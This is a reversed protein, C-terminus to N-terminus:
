QRLKAAQGLLVDSFGDFAIGPALPFREIPLVRRWPPRMLDFFGNRFRLFRLFLVLREFLLAEPEGLLVPRQQAGVRTADGLDPLERARSQEPMDIAQRFAM